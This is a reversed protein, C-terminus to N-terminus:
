GAVAAAMRRDLDAVAADGPMPEYTACYAGVRSEFRAFYAGFSDRTAPRRWSGSHWYTLGRPSRRLLTGLGYAARPSALGDIWGRSVPGLVPSGAAFARTFRLYDAASMMWGGFSSMAQWRPNIVGMAAMPRLVMRQCYADFAEGTVAEIVLGLALFNMNNYRQRVGPDAAFTATIARQFMASMSRETPEFADLERGQSPDFEIGSRHRLLHAITVQNIRADFAARAEPLVAVLPTDFTLRRRDILTAVGVGTVAKSLSALPALADAARTGFGIAGAAVGGIEIALTAGAVRYQSQWDAFAARWSEALTQARASGIFPAALVGVIVARRRM